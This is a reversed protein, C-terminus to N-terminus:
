RNDHTSCWNIFEDASWCSPCLEKPLPGKQAIDVGYRIDALGDIDHADPNIPIPVKYEICLPLWRWDIDLRHPNANLEIAKGHEAACAIVKRHDIPYGDRRLLLRGTLHGLIDVHPNELARCLRDTAAEETMKFGSHISAVVYDFGALLDDDFDLSGDPLIDAETGKLIRFPALEQNLKDIETWQKRVREPTLGNAYAAAQSHDAVGFFEYGMAIMAEAMERLTHHGDSATTHNHIIGKFDELRVPTPYVGSNKLILECNRERLAPPVFELGLLSYLDHETGVTLVKSKSDILGSDSLTFGKASALKSLQSLHEKSGTALLKRLPADDIPIVSLEIDISHSSQGKLIGDSKDSWEIDTSDTVMQRVAEVDENACTLIIDLDGITENGRGLSGGFFVESVGNIEAFVERLREAEQVAHHRLHRGEHKRIFEIGSLFKELTKTGLGPLKPLTNNRIAHDLQEVSEVKGQKWLTRAKKPGLGEIRLLELVGEPVLTKARELEQFTGTQIIGNIATVVTKGIGRISKLAGTKVLEELTETQMELQRSANAFTKARFEDEDTLELLISYEKLLAAADKATIM